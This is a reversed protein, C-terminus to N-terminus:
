GSTIVHYCLERWWTACNVQASKGVWAISVEVKLGDNMGNGRVQRNTEGCIGDEWGKSFVGRQGGVCCSSIVPSRKGM